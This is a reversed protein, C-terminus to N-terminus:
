HALGRNPSPVAPTGLPGPEPALPLATGINPDFGFGTAPEQEYGPNPANFLSIPPRYPGAGFGNAATGTGSVALTAAGEGARFVRALRERIDDLLPVMEPDLHSRSPAALARTVRPSVPSPGPGLLLRETSPLPM